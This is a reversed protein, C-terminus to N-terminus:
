RCAPYQGQGFATENKRVMEFLGPGYFDANFAIWEEALEQSTFNPVIRSKITMDNPDLYEEQRPEYVSISISAPSVLGGNRMGEMTIVPAHVEVDGGIARWPTMM